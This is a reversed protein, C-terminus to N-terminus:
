PHYELIEQACHRVCLLFKIFIQQYIDWLCRLNLLSLVLNMRPGRVFRNNQNIMSGVMWNYPGSPLSMTVARERVAISVTQLITGICRRGGLFHAGVM